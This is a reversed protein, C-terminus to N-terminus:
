LRGTRAAELYGIWRYVLRASLFDPAHRGEVPALEVFDSGIVERTRAVERLLATATAWDLGGPEPTGTSPMISPDLVDLDFTLFVRPGLADIVERIWEGAPRSRIQHMWFTKVEPRALNEQEEEGCARIGVQVIRCGEDLARAMISAHSHPSGEYSDRLDSHADVQLVTFDEGAERLARILGITVSHEGGIGIVHRGSSLAGRAAEIAALVMKEPELAELEPGELTLIGADCPVFGLEEDWFEVQTSAEILAEPGRLTGKGYSATREYALPLIAYRCSEPAPQEEPQLGLFRATNM